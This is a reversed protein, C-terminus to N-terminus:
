EKRSKKGSIPSWDETIVQSAINGGSSGGPTGSGSGSSGGIGKVSGSGRRITTLYNLSFTRTEMKPRFVRIINGEQQYELDLPKLLAELAAAMTVNKLDVTVIGM